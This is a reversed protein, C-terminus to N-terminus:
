FVVLIYPLDFSCSKGLLHGSVYMDDQCVSPSVTCFNVGFWAVCLIGGGGGGGGGLLLM